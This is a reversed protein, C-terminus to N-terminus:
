HMSREVLAIQQSTLLGPPAALVVTTGDATWTILDLVEMSGASNRFYAHLGPGHIPPFRPMGFTAAGVPKAIAIKDNSSSSARTHRNETITLPGQQTDYRFILSRGEGAGNPPVVETIQGQLGAPLGAPAIVTFPMDRRAQDLTVSNTSATVMQGNVSVFVRFMHEVQALVNRGGFVLFVIASAAAIAIAPRRWHARVHPARLRARVAREDYPPVAINEAYESAANCLKDTTSSQNM